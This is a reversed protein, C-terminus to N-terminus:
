TSSSSSQKPIRHPTIAARGFYDFFTQCYFHTLLVEVKDVDSRRPTFFPSALVKIDKLLAASEGPWDSVLVRFNEVYPMRDEWKEAALGENSSPMVGVLYGSDGPFVRKLLDDRAAAKLSDQWIKAMVCRDLALLELRFNHEFLDWIIQSTVTCTLMSTDGHQVALENWFVQKPFSATPLRLSFIEQASAHLRERHRNKSALRAPTGKRTSALTSM